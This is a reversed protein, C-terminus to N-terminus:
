ALFVGAKSRGIDAHKRRISVRRHGGLANFRHFKKTLNLDSNHNYVEYYFGHATTCYIVHYDIDSIDHNGVFISLLEHCSPMDEASAMVYLARFHEDDEHVFSCDRILRTVRRADDYLLEGIDGVKKTVFFLDPYREFWREHNHGLQYMEEMSSTVITPNRRHALLVHMFTPYRDRVDFLLQYVMMAMSYELNPSECFDEKVITLNEPPNGWFNRHFVEEANQKNTIILVHAFHKLYNRVVTSDIVPNILMLLGANEVKDARFHSIDECITTVDIQNSGDGFFQAKLDRIYRYLIHAALFNDFNVSDYAVAVTNRTSKSLVDAISDFKQIPKM